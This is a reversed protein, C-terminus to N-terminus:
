ERKSFSRLKWFPDLIHASILRMGTSPTVETYYKSRKQPALKMAFFLDEKWPNNKKALSRMVGDMDDFLDNNVTIEHHLTVTHRRLMWM